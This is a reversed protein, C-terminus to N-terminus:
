PTKTFELSAMIDTPATILAGGPKSVAIELRDGQNVNVVDVLNSGQAANAQINVALLTGANNIRVTYLIQGPNAAPTNHRIFLNALTGKYPAYFQFATVPTATTTEGCGPTLFRIDNIITVGQNGWILTCGGGASPGPAHVHDARALKSSTGEQNTLGVAVPVDTEIDHKHDARAANGSSGASAASKTV